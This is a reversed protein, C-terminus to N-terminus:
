LAGSARSECTYMRFDFFRFSSARRTESVMRVWNRVLKQALSAICCSRKNFGIVADGGGGAGADVTGGINATGPAGAGCAGGAGFWGCLAGDGFCRYIAPRAM